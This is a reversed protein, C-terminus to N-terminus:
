CLGGQASRVGPGASPPAAGDQENSSPLPRLNTPETVAPCFPHVLHPRLARRVQGSCGRAPCLLLVPPGPSGVPGSGATVGPVQATLVKLCSTVGGAPKLLISRELFSKM